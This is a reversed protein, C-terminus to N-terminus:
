QARPTALIKNDMLWKVARPWSYNAGMRLGTFDNSMVAGTQTDRILIQLTYETRTVRTVVGVLSLDAGIKKALPAECGSCHQLGGTPRADSGLGSTDVISYRGSASLMRRAEETSDRLSTTDVADQGIIGSGASADNLEFEFVAITLPRPDEARCPEFAFAISLAVTIAAPTRHAWLSSRARKERKALGEPM